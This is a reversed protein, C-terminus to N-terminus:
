RSPPCCSAYLQGAVEDVRDRFWALTDLDLCYCTAPGDVTGQVLGAERLVQLHQSTTSQALDTFAALEGTICQPHEVMYRLMRFRVPNSLAKFIGLLRTEDPALTASTM